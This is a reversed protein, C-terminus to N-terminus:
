AYGLIGAQQEEQGTAEPGKSFLCSGLFSSRATSRLASLLAQGMLGPGGLGPFAKAGSGEPTGRPLEWALQALVTGEM